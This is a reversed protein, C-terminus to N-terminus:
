YPEEKIGIVSCTLAAAGASQAGQFRVIHWARCSSCQRKETFKGKRPTRVSLTALWAKCCDQM